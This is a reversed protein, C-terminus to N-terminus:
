RFEQQIALRNVRAVARTIVESVVEPDQAAFTLTINMTGLGKDLWRTHGSVPPIRSLTDRADISAIRHNVSGAYAQEKASKRIANLTREVLLDIALHEVLHPLTTGIIKDKFRGIGAQKCAHESLTKRESLIVLAMQESVRANPPTVCVAASVSSGSNSISVVTLIEKGDQSTGNIQEGM